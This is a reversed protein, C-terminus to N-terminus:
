LVKEWTTFGGTHQAVTEAFERMIDSLSCSTKVVTGKMLAPNDRYERISRKERVKLCYQSTYETSYKVYVIHKGSTVAFLVQNYVIEDQM